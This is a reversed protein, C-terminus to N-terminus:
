HLAGTSAGKLQGIDLLRKQLMEADMREIPLAVFNAVRDLILRYANAFASSIEPDSGVALAPDPIGWHASAPKGPWIPCAEGAANDCVTIIFDM